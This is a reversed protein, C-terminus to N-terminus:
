ARRAGLVVLGFGIGANVMVNSTFFDSPLIDPIAIFPIGAIIMAHGLPDFIRIKMNKRTKYDMPGCGAPCHVDASM